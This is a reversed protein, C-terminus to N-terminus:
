LYPETLDTIFTIDPIDPISITSSYGSHWPTYWLCVALIWVLLRILELLGVLVVM